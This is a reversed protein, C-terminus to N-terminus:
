NERQKIHTELLAKANNLFQKFDIGSRFCYHASSHITYVMRGRIKLVNPPKGAAEPPLFLELLVEQSTFFNHDTLISAGSLSLDNTKGEFAMPKEGEVHLLAKVHIPLRPQERLEQMPSSADVTARIM